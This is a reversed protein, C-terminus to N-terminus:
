FSTGGLSFTLSTSLTSGDSLGLSSTLPNASYEPTFQDGLDGYTMTAGLSASIYDAIGWNISPRLMGSMDDLNSYWFLSTSVSDTLTLSATAAGYNFGSTTFSNAFLDDGNYGEGNFYYQAMLSVGFDSEDASWSYLGGVTGSLYLKDEFEHFGPVFGDLTSISNTSGYSALGEAFFMIDKFLTTSLTAMAKPPEDYQYYAGLGVEAGGLVKEYKLAYALDEIESAGDPLIVYGYLNDIGIPANMKISLPGELEATPNEPDVQSINLLNAPSFFYGVGWNLAQKGVRFFVRDNINFDSFLEKISIIDSGQRGEAIAYPLEDPTLVDSVYLPNEVLYSGSETFPYSIDAKGYVRISADPRADFFLTSSLSSGGLSWDSSEDDFNYTFTPAVAMSFSGGITVGEENVLLLENLNLDTEQVDTVLSDSATDTEEGFLDDMSGSDDGFLSDLDDSSEEGFLSDLDDAATAVAAPILLILLIILLNKGLTRM